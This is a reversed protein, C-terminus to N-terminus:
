EISIFRWATAEKTGGNHHETEAPWRSLILISHKWIMFFSTRCLEGFFLCDMDLIIACM